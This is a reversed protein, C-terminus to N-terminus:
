VIFDIRVTHDVDLGSFDYTSGNITITGSYVGYSPGGTQSVYFIMYHAGTSLPWQITMTEGSNHVEVIDSGVHHGIPQLPPLERDFVVDWYRAYFDDPDSATIVINTPGSITSSGTIQITFTHSGLEATQNILLTITVPCVQGVGLNGSAPMNWTVTGVPGLDSSAISFTHLDVNGINKLYGKWNGTEGQVVEGIAISTVVTKSDNAILELRPDTEIVVVSSPVDLTYDRVAAYGFASFVAILVLTVLWFRKNTAM